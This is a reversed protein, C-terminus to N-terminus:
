SAKETLVVVGDQDAYLYEGPRFRVGAFTVEPGEEGVGKKISKRPNSALALVGLNMKSLDDIDRVCGNMVVGSWGNAVAKEALRDGLMACRTSGGADVVLVRGAGPEDLIKRVYTNDEFCKLTAIPGCFSSRGGFHRLLPDCVQLQDEYQDYLDATKYVQTADSM